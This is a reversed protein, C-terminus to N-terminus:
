FAEVSCVSSADEVDCVRNWVGSSNANCAALSRSSETAFPPHTSSACWHSTKSIITSPLSSTPRHLIPANVGKEHTIQNPEKFVCGLM